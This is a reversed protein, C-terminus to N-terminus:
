ARENEKISVFMLGESFSSKNVEKKQKIADRYM